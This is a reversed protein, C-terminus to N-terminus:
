RELSSIIKEKYTQSLKVTDGNEMGLLLQGDDLTKIEKIASLRVIASRHCRAFVQPDLNSELFGITVRHLYKEKALMVEVYNGSGRCWIVDKLDVINILGISRVILVKLFSVQQTFALQQNSITDIVGRKGSLSHLRDVTQQFREDSFPKLLYDLAYLEFAQLAYDSYATVFVILPPSSLRLLGKAASIGDRKPMKIDLFVLCPDLDEVYKEIDHGNELELVVEWDTYQNILKRLSTRALSEDDIIIVKKIMKM